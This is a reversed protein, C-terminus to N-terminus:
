GNFKITLNLNELMNDVTKEQLIAESLIRLSRTNFYEKQLSRMKSVAEIFDQIDM